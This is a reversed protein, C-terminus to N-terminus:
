KERAHGLSFYGFSFAVGTPAKRGEMSPFDTLRRRAKRAPEQGRSFALGDRAEGAARGGRGRRVAAWPGRFLLRADQASAAICPRKTAATRMDSSKLRYFM